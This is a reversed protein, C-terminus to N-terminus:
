FIILCVSLFLLFISVTVQTISFIGTEGMAETAYNSLKKYDDTTIISSLQEFVYQSDECLLVPPKEIVPVHGMM